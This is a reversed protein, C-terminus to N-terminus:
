AFSLCLWFLAKQQFHNTGHVDEGPAQSIVSM